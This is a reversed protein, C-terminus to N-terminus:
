RPAGSWHWQMHYWWHHSTFAACLLQKITV